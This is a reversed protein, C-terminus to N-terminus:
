KTAEPLLSQEISKAIMENIEILAKYTEEDAFLKYSKFIGLNMATYPTWLGCSRLSREGREVQIAQLCPVTASKALLKKITNLM